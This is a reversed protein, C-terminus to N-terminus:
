WQGRCDSTSNYVNIITQVCHADSNITRYEFVQINWRVLVLTLGPYELPCASPNPEPLNTFASSGLKRKASPSGKKCERKQHKLLRQFQITQETAVM